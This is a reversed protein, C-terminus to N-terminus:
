SENRRVQPITALKRERMISIARRNVVQGKPVKVRITRAGKQPETGPGATFYQQVAIWYARKRTADFLVLCVPVRERMWLNWDRIDLDFPYYAGRQDLSEMAKVQFYV